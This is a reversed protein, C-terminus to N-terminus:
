VLETHGRWCALHLASRGDAGCSMLEAGSAGASGAEERSNGINTGLRGQCVITKVSFIAGFLKRVAWSDTWLRGTAEM